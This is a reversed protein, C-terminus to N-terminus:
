FMQDFLTSYVILTNFTILDIHFDKFWSSINVNYQKTMNYYLLNLLQDKANSILTYALINGTAKLVFSSMNCFYVKIKSKVLLHFIPQAFANSPIHSAVTYMSYQWCFQEWLSQWIHSFTYSQCNTPLTPLAWQSYRTHRSSFLLDTNTQSIYLKILVRKWVLLPQLGCLILYCKRYVRKM